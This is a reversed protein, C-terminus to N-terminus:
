QQVEEYIALTGNAGDSVANVQQQTIKVNGQIEWSMSGGPSLVLGVGSVANANVAVSIKQGGTSTNQLILRIRESYNKAESVMVNDTGITASTNRSNIVM